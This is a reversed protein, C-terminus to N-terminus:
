SPYHSKLTISISRVILSPDYTAIGIYQTSFSPEIRWHTSGEGPLSYMIVGSGRQARIFAEVTAFETPRLNKYVLSVKRIENRIGNPAISEYGDGLNSQLIKYEYSISISQEDILEQHPLTQYTPM